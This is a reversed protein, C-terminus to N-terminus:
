VTLSWVDPIFAYGGGARVVHGFGPFDLHMGAVLLRDTATMDMIRQRTAIAAAGDVDFGMGAEPRPFQVGPMHVIDGWILLSESGSAILWGSHGPTHGPEPLISIGPLTEGATLLRTRDAYAAITARALQVFGRDQDSNAGALTADDGWYRHDAQHVVLEANPFVAAGASDVLGGVHDPHLHTCLVTDIDAPAVGLALLDDALHGAAPGIAGGFGSDVLVLRGVTQILYCNIVFRPPIARFAAHHLAEAEAAPFNALLAFSGEFMGDNIATVVVDGVRKHHIGPSQTTPRTPSPM